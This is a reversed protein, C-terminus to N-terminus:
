VRITTQCPDYVCFSTVVWCCGACCEHTQFGYLTLTDDDICEDPDVLDYVNTVATMYTAVGRRNILLEPPVNFFCGLRDYIKLPSEPTAGGCTVYLANGWVWKCSSGGSPVDVVEFIIQKADATSTEAVWRGFKDRKIVIFTNGPISSPTPNFVRVGSVPLKALRLRSMSDYVAQYLDCIASHMYYVSGSSEIGQIGNEPTRALYVEPAQHDERDLWGLETPVKASINLRGQKFQDLLDRLLQADDESLAILRPM